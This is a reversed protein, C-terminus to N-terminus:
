FLSSVGWLPVSPIFAAVANNARCKHLMGRGQRKGAEGKEGPLEDSCASHHAAGLVVAARKLHSRLAAMILRIFLVHSASVSKSSLALPATAGENTDGPAAHTSRMIHCLPPQRTMWSSAAAVGLIRWPDWPNKKKEQTLLLFKCSFFFSRSYSSSSPPFVAVSHNAGKRRQLDAVFVSFDM